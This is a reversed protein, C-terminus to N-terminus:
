YFINGNELNKRYSCAKSYLLNEHLCRAADSCEKYKSCCGFADAKSTYNDVAYEILRKLYAPLNDSDKEIIWYPSANNRCEMDFPMEVETNMSTLRLANPRTKLAPDKINIIVENRDPLTDDNSFDPFNKEWICISYTNIDGNKDKNEALYIANIYLGKDSIINEIIKTIIGKWDKGM